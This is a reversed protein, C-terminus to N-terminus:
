PGNMTEFLTFELFDVSQVGEPRFDQELPQLIRVRDEVSNNTIQERIKHTPPLDNEAIWHPHINCYHLTFSTGMKRIPITKTKSQNCM